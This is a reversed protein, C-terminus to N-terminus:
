HNCYVIEFRQAPNSLNAPETLINKGVRYGTEANPENESALATHSVTNFISKTNKNYDFKQQDLHMDQYTIINKNAGEFMATGAHLKTLIAHSDSNYTFQQAKNDATDGLFERM